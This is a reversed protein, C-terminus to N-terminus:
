SSTVNAVTFRAALSLLYRPSPLSFLCQRALDPLHIQHAAALNCTMERNRPQFKMPFRQMTALSRSLAVKLETLPLCLELLSSLLVPCKEIGYTNLCPHM